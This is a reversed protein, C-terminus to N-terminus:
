RMPGLSSLTKDTVNVSSHSNLTVKVEVDGATCFRAGSMPMTPVGNAGGCTFEPYGDIWLTASWLRDGSPFHSSLITNVFLVADDTLEVVHSIFEKDTGDCYITSADTTVLPITVSNPALGDTVITGTITLSGDIAVDATFKVKGLVTDVEFVKIPNNPDTGVIGFFDDVFYTSGTTGDNLDVRGIIHGDVNISFVAKGVGSGDVSQLDTIFVTHGDVTIGLQQTVTRVPVGGIYLLADTEGRWTSGRLIEEAINLANIDIDSLIEDAPRGALNISDGAVFVAPPTRSVTGSWDGVRTPSAARWRVNYNKGAVVRTDSWSQREAPARALIPAASDDNPWFEFEVYAVYGNTITPWTASLAPIKIGDQVLTVGSVTVVGPTFSPELPLAGIPAVCDTLAM